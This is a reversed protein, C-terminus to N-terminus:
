ARRSAMFQVTDYRIMDITTPKRYIDIKISGQRNSVNQHLCAIQNNNGDTM